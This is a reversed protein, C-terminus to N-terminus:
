SAGGAPRLLARAARVDDVGAVRAWRAAGPADGVRHLAWALAAAHAATPSRGYVARGFRVATAPDGHDAEFVVRAGEPLVGAQEELLYGARALDLATAAGAADGLRALVEAQETAWAPAPRRAVLDAYLDRARRPDGAAVATRAALHTLAPDDPAVARGAALAARAGDLDGDQLALLGEHGRAFAVEGASAAAGAARVLLARARRHDGRLEALYALRTFSAVGPAAADLQRATRTADDLRGLGTLADTMAALALPSRPDAALATRARDRAAAFDHEANDLMAHTALATANGAPDLALSRDAADRAEAYRAPDAAARGAELATVALASWAAPDRPVQRTRARAADLATPEGAAAPVATAIPAAAPSTAPVAVAAARDRVVTAGAAVGTVLAAAVLLAGTRHRGTPRHPM